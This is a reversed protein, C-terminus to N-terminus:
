ICMLIVLHDKIENSENYKSSKVIYVSENPTQDEDQMLDDTNTHCHLYAHLFVRKSIIIKKKNNSVEPPVSVTIKQNWYFNFFYMYGSKIVGFFIFLIFGKKTTCIATHWDDKWTRNILNKKRWSSETFLLVTWNQSPHLHIKSLSVM